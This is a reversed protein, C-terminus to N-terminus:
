HDLRKTWSPRTPDDLDGDWSALLRGTIVDHLECHSVTEGHTPGVHYAVQSGNQEFAWSWFTPDAEFTRIIRGDRWVVLKGAFPSGIPGHDDREQYLVLWGATQKDDAVAVADIGVADTEPDIVSDKGGESVAHVKNQADAYARLISNQALMPVTSSALLLVTAFATQTRVM